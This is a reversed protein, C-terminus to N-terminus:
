PDAIEPPWVVRFREFVCAIGDYFDFGEAEAQRSFFTRHMGLWDTRTREGEGEDWAFAEDVSSLPGIRVETTRWIARAAGNGDVLVVHDGVVPLTEGGAEFDRALGATARKPGSVVLEALEDAMATGDGFAVVEYDGPVNRNESFEAWFADTQATKRYLHEM